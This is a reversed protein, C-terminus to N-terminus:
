LVSRGDKLCRGYGFIILPGRRVYYIAHSSDYFKEDIKESLIDM